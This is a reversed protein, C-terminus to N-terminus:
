EYKDRPIEIVFCTGSEVNKVSLTAQMKQTLLKKAMFLGLGTGESSHKTTFDSEFIKSRVSKSMGGANDCIKILLFNENAETFIKIVPEYINRSVFADRANDLLTVVVQKLLQEDGSFQDSIELNYEVRIKNAELNLRISELSTLILEKLPTSKKEESLYGRYDDISQSMQKTITEIQSLQKTIISDDVKLEYLRNDINGIISNIQSLPGRWQHAISAFLEKLLPTENLYTELNMDVNHM